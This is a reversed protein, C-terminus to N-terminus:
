ISYNFTFSIALVRVLLTCFIYGEDWSLSLFFSFIFSLSIFCSFV